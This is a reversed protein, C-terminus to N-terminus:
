TNKIPTIMKEKKDSIESEFSKSFIDNSKIKYNLLLIKKLETLVKEVTTAEIKAAASHQNGGGGLETMIKSVDIVGKSRASVGVLDNKMKGISLALSVNYKLLYDSSKALDEQTYISEKSDAAIAVNYAYFEASDILKQITRDHEFDEVFFNSVESVDAGKKILNSAVEFTKVTTKKSFKNTDLTMGALLANADDSSIEINFEELLQTMLECMSSTNMDIFKKDTKITKDNENHHDIVIINKFLELKIIPIMDIKNVDAVILLDNGTLFGLVETSKIIKLNDKTSNMVKKTGTEIEEFEDDIVIYVNKQFKHCILNLSIAAGIADLDPKNHVVIFINDSEVIYKELCTKLEQIKGEM